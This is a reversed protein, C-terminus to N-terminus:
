IYTLYLHKFYNKLIAFIFKTNLANPDSSASEIQAQWAIAFTVLLVTKM